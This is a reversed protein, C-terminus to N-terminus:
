SDLRRNVYIIDKESVWSTKGRSLKYGNGSWDMQNENYTESTFLSALVGTNRNFVWSSGQGTTKMIEKAMEISKATEIATSNAIAIDKAKANAERTERAMEISKASEKAKADAEAIDRASLVVEEEEWEEEWEEEEEEEEEEEKGGCLEPEITETSISEGMLIRMSRENFIPGGSSPSIQQNNGEPNSDYVKIGNCIDDEIIRIVQYRIDSDCTRKLKGVADICIQALRFDEAKSALMAYVSIMIIAHEFSSLPEGGAAVFQDQITKAAGLSSKYVTPHYGQPNIGTMNKFIRNAELVNSLGKGWERLFSFVGM